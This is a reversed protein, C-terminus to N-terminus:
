AIRANSASSRPTCPKCSSLFGRDWECSKDVVAALPGLWAKGHERLARAILKDDAATRAPKCSLAVFEGRPDGREILADAYVMRPADDDPAAAIAALLDAESRPRPKARPVPASTPTALYADLKKALMPYFGSSGRPKAKRKKALRARV